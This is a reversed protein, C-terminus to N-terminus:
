PTAYVGGMDIRGLEFLTAGIAERPDMPKTALVLDGGVLPSRGVPAKSTASASYRSAAISAVGSTGTLSGSFASLTSSTRVTGALHTAARRVHGVMSHLGNVIGEGWGAALKHSVKSPSNVQWDLRTHKTVQAAVIKAATTVGDLKGYIGDILGQGWSAGAARADGPLGALISRIQGPLLGLQHLLERFKERTLGSAGSFSLLRKEAARLLPAAEKLPTGSAKWGAVLLRTLRVQESVTPSLKLMSRDVSSLHGALRRDEAGAEATAKKRRSTVATYDDAQKKAGKYAAILDDVAQVAAVANMDRKGSLDGQAKAHLAEFAVSGKGMALNKVDTSNINYKALQGTVKPNASLYQNLFNNANPGFRGKDLKLADGLANQLQVRYQKVADKAANAANAAAHFHGVLGAIAGGAAGVAAGFPGGVAFGAVMGSVAGGLGAKLASGTGYSKVSSGIQFAGIAGAAGIAAGRILGLSRAAMGAAGSLKGAGLAGTLGDKAAMGTSLASLTEMAKSIGTVKLLFQAARLTLAAGFLTGIATGLFPVRDILTNVAGVFTTMLALLHSLPGGAQSLHGLTQAFTTLFGIVKPGLDRGLNNLLDHLAPGLKTRIESLMPVLNNDHSMQMFARGMSGLIAAVERLAPASQAFFTRLKNQEGASNMLDSWRKLRDDMANLLGDGAPMAARFIGAFGVWLSRVMRGLTAAKDGAQGLMKAFSGSARAGAAWKDIWVGFSTAGRGLRDLFPQAAVALDMFAHAIGGLMGLFHGLLRNGGGMVTSLDGRFASGRMATAAQHLFNGFEAGTVRLRRGLTPILSNALPKIDGAIKSFLAEQVTKRVPKWQANVDMLALAAKRASPSLQDLQRAMAARQAKTMKQGADFMQQQKALQGVAQMFGHGAVKAGLFATGISTILGPAAGLVGLSQGASGIMSMLGAGGQGVLAVLPQILSALGLYMAGRFAGRGITPTVEVKVKKGDAEAQAVGLVGRLKTLFGVTGKEKIPVEVPDMEAIAQAEASAEVTDKALKSDGKIPVDVGTAAAVASQLKERLMSRDFDVGIQATVGEAAADVAARLRERLTPADIEVGIKASVGRAAEDVKARLEEKFGTYDGVVPVELRGAVEGAGPVDSV